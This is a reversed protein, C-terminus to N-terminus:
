HKGFKGSARLLSSDAMFPTERLEYRKKWRLLEYFQAIKLPLRTIQVKLFRRREQISDGCSTRPSRNLRVQAPVFLRFAGSADCHVPPERTTLFRSQKSACLPARDMVIPGSLGAHTRQTPPPPAVGLRIPSLGCRATSDVPAPDCTPRYCIPFSHAGSRPLGPM